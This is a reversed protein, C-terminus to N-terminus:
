RARRAALVTCLRRVGLLGFLGILPTAAALYMIYTGIGFATVEMYAVLVCRLLVSLLLGWLLVWGLAAQWGDAAPARGFLQRWSKRWSGFAAWLGLAAAPLILIRWVWMLVDIGAFCAQQLINLYPRDTGAVYGRVIDGGLFDLMTELLQPDNYRGIGPRPGCGPMLAAMVLSNGTEKLTPTLYEARWWPVTSPSFHSITILGEAELRRLEAAMERYFAATDLANQYQGAAQSGLRIAYYFSGGFDSPDVKSAYGSLTTRAEWYPQLAAFFESNDYLIQRTARTTPQLAGTGEDDIGVLLGYATTFDSSTLDSVIFRGYTAYNAGAYAAVCGGLLVFPLTLCCLGAAAKRWGVARVLALAGFLSFCIFFPLLWAGDERNLWSAGLGLGGIVAFGWAAASRRGADKKAAPVLRLVAGILGGFALLLLPVTISDRYVRYIFGDFGIPCYGLMTFTILVWYRKQLLPRLAVAMVWAGVLGLAANALLYPLHLWHIVVLWVSFFMHKAMTIFTYKGLWQGAAISRAAEYMLQDDIPAREPELFLRGQTALALRVVTLLVVALTLGLVSLDRTKRDFLKQM